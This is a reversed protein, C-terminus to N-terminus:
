NLKQKKASLGRKKEADEEGIQIGREEADAMLNCYDMEYKQESLSRYYIKEDDTYDHIVKAAM